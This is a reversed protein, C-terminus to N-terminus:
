KWKRRREEELIVERIMEVDGSKEDEVRGETRKGNREKVGKDIIHYSM